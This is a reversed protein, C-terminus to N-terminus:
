SILSWQIFFSKICFTFDEALLHDRGSSNQGLMLYVIMAAMANQCEKLGPDALVRKSLQNNLLNQTHM